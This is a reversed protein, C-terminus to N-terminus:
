GAGIGRPLYFNIGVMCFQRFEETRRGEIVFRM